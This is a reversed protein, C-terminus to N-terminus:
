HADLRTDEHQDNARAMATATCLFIIRTNQKDTIEGNRETTNTCSLRRSTEGENTKSGGVM